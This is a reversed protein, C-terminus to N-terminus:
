PRAIHSHESANAFRIAQETAIVRKPRAGRPGFHMVLGLSLRAACLYNLLQISAIPMLHLGTKAEVILRSDVMLDAQYCGVPEGRHFLEFKVEQEVAVGRHRLEVVPARRCVGEAFGYGFKRFVDYSSAIVTGTLAQLPFADDSPPQTDPSHRM